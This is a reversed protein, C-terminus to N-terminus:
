LYQVHFVKKKKKKFSERKAFHSQWDSKQTATLIKPM